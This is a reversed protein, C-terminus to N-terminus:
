RNGRLSRVIRLPEGSAGSTEHSLCRELECGAALRDSLPTEQLERRSVPPLRALDVTTRVHEPRLGALELRRRDFPVHHWVHHFLRRLAADRHRELSRPSRFSRVVAALLEVPLMRATTSM